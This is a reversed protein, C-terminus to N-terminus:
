IKKQKKLSGAVRIIQRSLSKIETKSLVVRPKGASNLDGIPDAPILHYHLHKISKNSDDGERVMITFNNYKLKQIIKAGAVILRNLDQQESASIAFFSELHRKPIVLLHHKHYPARAYTLFASRNALLVRDKARCFPCDKLNKLFRHYFM